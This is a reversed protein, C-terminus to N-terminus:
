LITRVKEPPRGLVAKGNHLVIPREILKPNKVLIGVWEEETFEKGKFDSKYIEEGKRIIEVPTIEMKNLLERLEEVTPPNILYEIIQPEIGEDRLIQLTERSKRCRPNHYIKTM